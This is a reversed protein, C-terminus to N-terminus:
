ARILALKKGDHVVPVQSIRSSSLSLEVLGPNGQVIRSLLDTSDGNVDRLVLKELRHCHQAVLAVIAPVQESTESSSWSLKLDRLNPGVATLLTEFGPLSVFCLSCVHLSQLSTFVANGVNAFPLHYSPFSLSLPSLPIRLNKLRPFRQATLLLIDRYFCYPM